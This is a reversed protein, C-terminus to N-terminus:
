LDLKELLNRALLVGLFRLMISALGRPLQKDEFILPWLHLEKITFKWNAGECRQFGTAFGNRKV